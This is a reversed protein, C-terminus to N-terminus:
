TTEGERSIRSIMYFNLSNRSAGEAEITAFVNGVCSFFFEKIKESNILGVSNIKLGLLNDTKIQYV